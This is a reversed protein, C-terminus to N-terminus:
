TLGAQDDFKNASEECEFRRVMSVSEHHTFLSSRWTTEFDFLKCQYKMEMQYEGQQIVLSSEKILQQDVNSAAPM